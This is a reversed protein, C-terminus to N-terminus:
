SDRAAIWDDQTIVTGQGWLVEGRSLPVTQADLAIVTDSNSPFMGRWKSKFIDIVGGFGATAISVLMQTYEMAGTSTQQVAFDQPNLADMLAGLDFVRADIEGGVNNDPDNLANLLHRGSGPPLAAYGMGIPDIEVESKLEALHAPNTNDFSM